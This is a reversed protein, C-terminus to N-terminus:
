LLDINDNSFNLAFLQSHLKKFKISKGRKVRRWSALFSLVIYEEEQLNMM